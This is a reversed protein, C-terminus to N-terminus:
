IAEIRPAKTTKPQTVASSSDASSKPNTSPHPPLPPNWFWFLDSCGTEMRYQHQARQTDDTLETM